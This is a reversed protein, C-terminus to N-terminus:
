NEVGGKRSKGFRHIRKARVRELTGRIVGEKNGLLKEKGTVEFGGVLLVCSEERGSAGRRRGALWPSGWETKGAGRKNKRYLFTLRM